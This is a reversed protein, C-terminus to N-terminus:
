ECVQKLSEVQKLLAASLNDQRSDLWQAATMRRLWTLQRKALQRTAQISATIMTQRDCEGHLYQWVQRYGVARLAPQQADLDGRDRLTEVEEILGQRLMRHFRQEIRQHLDAREPPAIIWQVTHRLRVPSSGDASFHQSLPRGTLEFVELARQVRQPDHPHIRAAAVPDVAQLRQHLAALGHQQREDELRQRLLPDAAPLPSLGHLLAHFYLLTGGVLLPFRGSAQAQQIAALADHRFQAASYAQTPELIDILQHPYRARTAADPKATGIDLGRYVMVSDVSILSVPLQEALALAVDSKGAATPGMLM